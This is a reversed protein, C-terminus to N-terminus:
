PENKALPMEPTCLFPSGQRDVVPSSGNSAILMRITSRRGSFVLGAPQDICSPRLRGLPPATLRLASGGYPADHIKQEDVLIKGPLVQVQHAPKAIGAMGDDKDRLTPGPFNRADASQLIRRQRRGHRRLAIQLIHFHPHHVPEGDRAQAFPQFSLTERGVQHDAM